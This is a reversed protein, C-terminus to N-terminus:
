VPSKTKGKKSSTKTGTYHSETTDIKTYGVDARNATGEILGKCDCMFVRRWPYTSLNDLLVVFPWLLLFVGILSGGAVFNAAASMESNASGAGHAIDFAVGTVVSLGVGTCLIAIFTGLSIAFGLEADQKSRSFHWLLLSYWIIIFGLLSVLAMLANAHWTQLSYCQNPAVMETNCLAVGAPTNQYCNQTHPSCYM